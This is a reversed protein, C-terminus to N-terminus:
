GNGAVLAIGLGLGLGRGQDNRQNQDSTHHHQSFVRFATCKLVAAALGSPALIRGVILSDDQNKCQVLLFFSARHPRDCVASTRSGLVYEWSLACSSGSHIM